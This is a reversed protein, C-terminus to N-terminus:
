QPTHNEHILDEANSSKRYQYCPAPLLKTVFPVLKKKM